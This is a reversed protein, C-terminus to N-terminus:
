VTSFSYVTRSMGIEGARLVVSPYEPVNVANPFQQTELCFGSYQRYASGKKGAVEGIVNGSYFQIGPFDTYVDLRIGSIDGIAAAAHWGERLSWNHDYGRGKRLQEHDEFLREGIKHYERFDFPTGAVTVAPAYPMVNEDDECYFDANIFLSHNLIDGSNHGNLNFYSHNIVNVITDQDSVFACDIGLQHNRYSFSIKVTLKGPYGEEMDQSTYKMVVRDGLIESDWLKYCFGEKGGHLSNPGDNVFLTYRRGNLMFSGNAIRNACRGCIAGFYTSSEEYAKVSDYGLTIDRLVKNKDPVNIETVACGYDIIKINSGDKDSLTYETVERKDKTEGFLRATISM